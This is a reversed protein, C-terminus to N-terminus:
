RVSWQKSVDVLGVGGDGDDEFAGDGFGEVGVEGEWDVGGGGAGTVGGGGEGCFDVEGCGEAAVTGDEVGRGEEGM